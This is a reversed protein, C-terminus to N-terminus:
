IITIGPNWNCCVASLYWMLFPTHLRVCSCTFILRYWVFKTLKVCTGLTIVCIKEACIMLVRITIPVTYIPGQLLAIWGVICSRKNLHLGVSTLSDGGLYLLQLVLPPTVFLTQAQPLFQLLPTPVCNWSHSSPLACLNQSCPHSPCPNLLPTWNALPTWTAMPELLLSASTKGMSPSTSLRLQDAAVKACATIRLAAAAALFQKPTELM